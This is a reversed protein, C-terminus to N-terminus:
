LQLYVLPMGEFLLQDAHHIYRFFVIIPWHALYLSYSIDGIFLLTENRLSDNVSPSIRAVILTAAATVTLRCLFENNPIFLMVPSVVITATVAVVKCGTVPLVNARQHFEFAFSGALFQWLRSPLSSFHLERTSKAHVVFSVIAAILVLVKGLRLRHAILAFLPAVCYFQIEVALSWAHLLFDYNAIEAFYDREQFYKHVNLLFALSWGSDVALLHQDYSTLFIRGFVLVAFIMLYYAPFIRRIRKSFFMGIDALSISTNRSLIMRILYGSIVFFIDVGLFGKRFVTPFLHFLLVYIIALGRLCQIDDRKRSKDDVKGDSASRMNRWGGEVHSKGSEKSKISLLESSLLI